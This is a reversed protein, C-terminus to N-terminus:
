NIIWWGIRSTDTVVASNIVFSTGATVTGISLASAVTVTGLVQCTLFILSSATVATTSVTATGAVLAVSGISANSGTAINLKAGATNLTLNGKVIMKGSGDDLTNNITYVQNGDQITFAVNGLGSGFQTSTLVGFIPSSGGNSSGGIGLGSYYGGLSSTGAPGPLLTSIGYYLSNGADYIGFFNSVSSFDGPTAVKHGFHLGGSGTTIDISGATGGSLSATSNLNLTTIDASLYYHSSDGLTYTGTTSPTITQSTLTGVMTAGTTPVLISAPETLFVQKTGAALTVVSGSNSSAIVTTRALTTGSTTFTGLGVEWANNTLDSIAYYCTDGNSLANTFAQYGTVAGALTLTGTGTTTTTEQVRDKFQLAM